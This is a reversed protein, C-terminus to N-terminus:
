VTSSNTTCSEHHPNMDHWSILGAPRSSSSHLYIRHCSLNPATNLMLNTGTTNLGPLTLLVASHTTTICVTQWIPDQVQRGTTVQAHLIRSLRGPQQLSSVAVSPTRNCAPNQSGSNQNFRVWAAPSQGNGTAGLSQITHSCVAGAVAATTTQWPKTIAPTGRSGPQPAPRTTSSMYM